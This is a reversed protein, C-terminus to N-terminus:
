DNHATTLQKFMNVLSNPYITALPDRTYQKTHGPFAVLQRGRIYVPGECAVKRSQITCEGGTNAQEPLYVITEGSPSVSM